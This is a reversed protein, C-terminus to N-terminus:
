SFCPATSLPKSSPTPRHRLQFTRVAFLGSRTHTVFFYSHRKRSRTYREQFNASCVIRADRRQTTADYEIYVTYSIIIYFTINGYKVSPYINQKLPRSGKQCINRKSLRQENFTQLLSISTNPM